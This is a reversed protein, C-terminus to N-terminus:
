RECSDHRGIWRKALAYLKSVGPLEFVLVVLAAMGLTAWDSHGRFVMYAILAYGILHRLMHTIM